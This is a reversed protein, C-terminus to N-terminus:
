RGGLGWMMDWTPSKLCAGGAGAALGPGRPREAKARVVQVNVVIACM